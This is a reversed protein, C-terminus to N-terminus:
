LRSPGVMQDYGAELSARLSKSTADAIGVGGQGEANAAKARKADEALKRADQLRQAEAKRQQEAGIVKSVEPNARCAMEYAANLDRAHGSQILSAMMASVDDFYAHKANGQEDTAM